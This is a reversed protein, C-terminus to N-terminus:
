VKVPLMQFKLDSFYFLSTKPFDVISKNSAHPAPGLRTATHTCTYTPHPWSLFKWSAVLQASLQRPGPCQLAPSDSSTHIVPSGCGLQKGRFDELQAGVHPVPCGWSFWPSGLGSSVEPAVPGAEWCAQRRGALTFRGERLGRLECSLLNENEGLLCGTQRIALLRRRNKKQIIIKGRKKYSFIM